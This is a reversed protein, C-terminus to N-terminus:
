EVDLALKFFAGEGKPVTFTNLWTGDGQSESSLLTPKVSKWGTGLSATEKVVLGNPTATMRTPSLMKIVHVTEGPEFSVVKFPVNAAVTDTPALGYVCNLGTPM